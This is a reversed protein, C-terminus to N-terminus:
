GGAIEASLPLTIEFTVGPGENIKVCLTGGNAEVISRSIPLGLGLGNPKTTQFPEFVDELRNPDIGIGTDRVAIQVSMNASPAVCISLTRPHPAAVESLADISNTVLNMMVQQLQVRDATIEPLNPDLHTSVKVHHHQIAMESLAIVEAIMEGTDFTSQTPKGNKFLSRIRKLVESARHGDRVIRQLAERVEQLNSPNGELWRIAADANTVIAGLPQNIEHAISTTLEGFVSSRAVRTLVAQIERSADEARRRDELDSNTGYWKLVTGNEDLLPVTRVLFWRYEGDARRM